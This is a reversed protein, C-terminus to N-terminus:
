LAFIVPRVPTDGGHLAQGIDAAAGGGLALAFSILLMMALIFGLLPVAIMLLNGRPVDFRSSEAPIDPPPRIVV